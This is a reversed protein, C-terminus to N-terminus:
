FKKIKNFIEKSYVNLIFCVIPAALCVLPVLNDRVKRKLIVGFAYLGLLRGYTYGAAKFLSSIVCENNIIDFLLFVVFM